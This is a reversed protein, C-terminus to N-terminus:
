PSLHHFGRKPRIERHKKKSSGFSENTVVAPEDEHEVLTIRIEVAAAQRVKCFNPFCNLPRNKAM